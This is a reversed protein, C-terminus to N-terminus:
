LASEWIAEPIHEGCMAPSHGQLENAQTHGRTRTGDQVRVCASTRACTHALTRSVRWFSVRPCVCRRVCVHVCVRAGARWPFRFCLVLFVCAVSLSAFVRVKRLVRACFFCRLRACLLVRAHVLVARVDPFGPVRILFRARWAFLVRM